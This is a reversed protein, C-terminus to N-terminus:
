EEEKLSTIPIFATAEWEPLRLVYNKKKKAWQDKQEVVEKVLRRVQDEGVPKYALVRLSFTYGGGWFSAVEVKVDLRMGTPSLKQDSLSVAM